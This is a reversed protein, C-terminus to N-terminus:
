ANEVKRARFGMTVTLVDYEDVLTGGDVWNGQELFMEVEAGNRVVCM